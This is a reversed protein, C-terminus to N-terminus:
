RPQRAIDVNNLITDNIGFKIIPYRPQMYPAASKFYSNSVFQCM